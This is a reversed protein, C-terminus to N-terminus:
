VRRDDTPWVRYGKSEESYGLFLCKSTRAQFKEKGPTKNLSFGKCGLRKLYSLNPNVGTWKQSSTEGNLSRSPCRNRFHNKLM